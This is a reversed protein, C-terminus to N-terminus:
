PRPRREDAPPQWYEPAEKPRRTVSVVLLVVGVVLAALLVLAVIVTLGVSMPEGKPQQQTGAVM